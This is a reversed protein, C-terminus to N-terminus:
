LGGDMAQSPGFVACPVEVSRDVYPTVPILPLLRVSSYEHTRAGLWLLPFGDPRAAQEHAARSLSPRATPKSAPM